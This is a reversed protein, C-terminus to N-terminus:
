RRSQLRGSNRPNLQSNGSCHAFHVVGSVGAIVNLEGELRWRPVFKVLFRFIHNQNSMLVGSCAPPLGDIM